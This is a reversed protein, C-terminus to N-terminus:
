QQEKRKEREEEIIKVNKTQEVIQETKNFIIQPFFHSQLHMMEM